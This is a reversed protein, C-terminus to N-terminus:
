DNRIIESPYMEVVTYNMGYIDGKNNIYEDALDESEAIIIPTKTECFVDEEM